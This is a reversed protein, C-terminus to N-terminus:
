KQFKIGLVSSSVFQTLGLGGKWTAWWYLSLSYVFSFSGALNISYYDYVTQIISERNQVDTYYFLVYRKRSESQCSVERPTWTKLMKLLIGLIISLVVAGGTLFLLLNRRFWHM